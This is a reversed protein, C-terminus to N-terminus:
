TRVRPILGSPKKPLMGTFRRAAEVQFGDLCRLATPSLSWTESGYLLVSEVVVRFFMGAITAPVSDRAIIASIRGWVGRAKKLNRRVAPVDSDGESLKRGLYRFQDVNRLEKGYAYFRRGRARGAEAALRHQERQTGMKVCAVSTLHGTTAWVGRAVQMGCANCRPYATDDVVVTDRPHRFRFHARLRYHDRARGYPCDQVPCSYGGRAVDKRVHYTAPPAADEAPPLFVEYEDHQTEMHSRLSAAKLTKRCKPCQVRRGVPGRGGLGVDEGDLRMRAEYGEPSLKARIRGPTMVMVETKKANTKLGVRDFLATM